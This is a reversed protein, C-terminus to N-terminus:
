SSLGVLNLGLDLQCTQTQKQTQNTGMNLSPLM